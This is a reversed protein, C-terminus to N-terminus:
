SAARTSRQSIELPAFDPELWGARSEPSTLREKSYYKALLDRDLLEPFNEVWVVFSEKTPSQARASAVLRAWAVTTTYLFKAPANACAAMKRIGDLLRQESEVAGYKGVYLWALRVHDAHHFIGHPLNCNEFAELFAADDLHGCGMHLEM